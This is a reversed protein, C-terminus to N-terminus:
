FYQSNFLSFNGKNNSNYQYLITYFAVVYTKMNDNENM